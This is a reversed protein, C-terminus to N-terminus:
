EGLVRRALNELDSSLWDKSIEPTPAPASVSKKDQEDDKKHKRLLSTMVLIMFVINVALIATHNTYAGNSAFWWFDPILLCFLAALIVILLVLILVIKWTENPTKWNRANASPVIFFGALGVFFVILEIRFDSASSLGDVYLFSGILGVFLLGTYILSLLYRELEYIKRM